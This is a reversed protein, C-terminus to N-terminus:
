SSTRPDFRFLQQVLFQAEPQLRSADIVDSAIDLVDAGTTAGCEGALLLIDDTDRDVRAAQVKLALLYRPSPVSVTLGPVDLLLRAEPGTGPLLGMVADNLWAEHLRVGGPM